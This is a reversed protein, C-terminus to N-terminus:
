FLLLCLIICCFLFISVRSLSKDVQMEQRRMRLNNNGSFPYSAQYPYSFLNTNSSGFIRAYVMEGFMGIVPNFFNTMAIGGLSSSALTAYGGYSHPFYQQHHFSQSQSHFLNEQIRQSPHSSTNMTNLGSPSPRQPIVLDSHPNKSKFDSSIGRGYLPVLSSSSINSKCVPCNQQRQDADLSSTQVHLWKYICPWCYLHGCLTVVPDQASDFCISCDFRGADKELDRTPVSIPNWKQKLSIDGDSDFHAEQEFFNPEMAM